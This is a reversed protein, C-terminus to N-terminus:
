YVRWADQGDGDPDVPGGLGPGSARLSVHLGTATTVFCHAEDTPQYDVDPDWAPVGALLIDFLASEQEWDRGNWVAREPLRGSDIQEYRQDWGQARDVDADEASQRDGDEAWVGAAALSRTGASLAM